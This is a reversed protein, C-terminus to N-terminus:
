NESPKLNRLDEETADVFLALDDSRKLFRAPVILDHKFLGEPHIVIGIFEGEDILAERVHGLKRGTHGLMVNEGADIEVEDRSKSAIEYVNPAVIAGPSALAVFMRGVAGADVPRYRHSLYPRLQRVEAGTMTLEIRDHNARTVNTIPVLVEDHFYMSGPALRRGSFGLGEKVIISHPDFDVYEAVLGEFTGVERGDSSIVPTGSRFDFAAV